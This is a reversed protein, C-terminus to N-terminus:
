KSAGCGFLEQKTCSLDERRPKGQFCKEEFLLWGRGVWLSVERQCLLQLGMSSVFTLKIFMFYLMILFFHCRTAM